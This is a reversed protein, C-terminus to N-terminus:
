KSDRQEAQDEEKDEFLLFTSPDKDIFYHEHLYLESGKIPKSKGGMWHFGELQKILEVWTTKDHLDPSRWNATLTVKVKEQNSM